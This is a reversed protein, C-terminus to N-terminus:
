KYLRLYQCYNNASAWTAGDASTYSCNTVETAERVWRYYNSSDASAVQLVLWYVTEATVSAEIGTTYVWGETQVSAAPIDTASAVLTGPTGSNDTYIHVKIDQTPSGERYMVMGVKVITCTEAATFKQALWKSGSFNGFSRTSLRTGNYEQVLTYSTEQQAQVAVPRRPAMITSIRQAPSQALVSGCTLLIIFLRAIM